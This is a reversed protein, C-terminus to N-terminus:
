RRNWLDSAFWGGLWAFLALEFGLIMPSVLSILYATIIATVIFVLLNWKM